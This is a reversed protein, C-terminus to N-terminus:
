ELGQKYAKFSPNAKIAPDLIVVYSMNKAHLYEIDSKKFNASDVTFTVCHQM